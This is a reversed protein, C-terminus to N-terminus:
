LLSPLLRLVTPTGTKGAVIIKQLVCAMEM